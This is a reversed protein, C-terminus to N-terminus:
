AVGASRRPGVLAEVTNLLAMTDFPKPLFAQVGLDVATQSIGYASIALVPVTSEPARERWAQLFEQGSMVPMCLDLVIADPGGAQAKELAELGNTAMEVSFGEGEFLTKLLGRISPDDDVVLLSRAHSTDPVLDPAEAVLPLYVTVFCPQCLSVVSSWGSTVELRAKVVRAVPQDCNWCESVVQEVQGSSM